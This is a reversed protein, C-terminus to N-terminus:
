TDETASSYMDKSTVDQKMTQIVYFYRTHITKNAKYNNKSYVLDM